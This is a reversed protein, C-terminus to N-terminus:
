EIVRETRLMVSPPFKIGLVKATKLNIALEFKTPQEVPLEGPKAGKLIKDVYAASRRFVDPVSPGYSFLGGAEVFELFGFVSPLRNKTAFEAIIKRYASMRVNDVVTLADPRHKTMAAFAKVYHDATSVDISILTMGLARAPKEMATWHVDALPLRSDRLVAVRRAKPLIERLLELRKGALDPYQLSLGTVNGGPRALSAVMGSGFPDLMAGVVIPLSTTEQRAAIGLEVTPAYILDVKADIFERVLRSVNEMDWNASRYEIAINRDEIYGLDKLGQLFAAREASPKDTLPQLLLYGVRAPKRAPQARAVSPAVSMAAVSLLFSRRTIM